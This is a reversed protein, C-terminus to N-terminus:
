KCGVVARVYLKGKELSCCRLFVHHYWWSTLWWSVTDLSQLTYQSYSCDICLLQSQVASKIHAATLTTNATRYMYLIQGNMHSSHLNLLRIANKHPLSFHNDKLYSARKVKLISCAKELQGLMLYIDCTKATNTLQQNQCKAAEWKNSAVARNIFPSFCGLLIIELRQLLMFMSHISLVILVHKGRSYKFVRRNCNESLFTHKNPSM